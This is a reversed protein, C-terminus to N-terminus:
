QISQEIELIISLYKEKALADQEASFNKDAILEIHRNIFNELIKM